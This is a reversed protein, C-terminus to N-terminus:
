ALGACTTSFSGDMRLILIERPVMGLSARCLDNHMSQKVYGSVPDSSFAASRGTKGTHVRRCLEETRQFSTV